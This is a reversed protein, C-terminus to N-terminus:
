GLFSPKRHIRVLTGSKAFRIPIFTEVNKDDLIVPFNEVANADVQFILAIDDEFRLIAPFPQADQILLFDM